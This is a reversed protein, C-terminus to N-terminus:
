RPQVKLGRLWLRVAQWRILVAVRFSSHTLSARMVNGISAPRRVAHLRAVFPSENERRLTVSLSITAGPEGVRIDYRGDVPYFPSVYMTKEVTSIGDPDPQLFYAHRGGYTNHVDAVVAVLEGSASYCWFVSIPNFVYGFTRSMAFMFIREASVGHEGLVARIDSHDCREFRALRSVIGTPRPLEDYDVLWYSARYRFHNAIPVRRTHSVEGVYLGPVHRSACSYSTELQDQSTAIPRVM